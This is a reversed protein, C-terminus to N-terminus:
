LAILGAISQRGVAGLITPVGFELLACITQTTNTLGDMGELDLAKILDLQPYNTKALAEIM